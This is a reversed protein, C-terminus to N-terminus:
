AADEPAAKGDSRHRRAAHHAQDLAAAARLLGARRAMLALQASMEAVYDAIEMISPDREADDM